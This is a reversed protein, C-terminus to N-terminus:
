YDITTVLRPKPAFSDDPKDVRSAHIDRWGLGAYGLVRFFNNRNM